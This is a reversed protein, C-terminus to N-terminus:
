SLGAVVPVMSGMMAKKEYYRALAQAKKRERYEPDNNYKNKQYTKNSENWKKRTEPHTELHKKVSAIISERYKQYHTLPTEVVEM